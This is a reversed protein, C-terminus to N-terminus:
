HSKNCYLWRKLLRSLNPMVVWTMLAVLVLSMLAIQLVLPLETLFPRLGYTLLLSLCFISLWTVLFMKYRAPPVLSEEGSTTFWTELGSLVEIEQEGQEVEAYRQMWEQRIDSDEWALYHRMSDFKFVIRYYDGARVPKIINAGLHGEFQMADHTTGKMIEEFEQIRDPKPRRKVIITVPSDYDIGTQQKSSTM